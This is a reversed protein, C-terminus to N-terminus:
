KKGFNNFTSNRYCFIATVLITNRLYVGIYMQTVKVFLM